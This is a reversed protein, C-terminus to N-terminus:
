LSGSEAKTDEVYIVDRITTQVASVITFDKEGKNILHSSLRAEAETCTMADVLYNEKVKKIKDNVEQEFVAKVQFYM